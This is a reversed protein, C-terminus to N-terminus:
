RIIVKILMTGATRCRDVRLALPPMDKWRNRRAFGACKATTNLPSWLALPTSTLELLYVRIPRPFREKEGTM